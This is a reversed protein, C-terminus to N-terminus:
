RVARAAISPCCTAAPEVRVQWGQLILDAVLIQNAPRGSVLARGAEAARLAPDIIAGYVRRRARHAAAREITRTM